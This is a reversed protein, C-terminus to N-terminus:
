SQAKVPRLTPDLLEYGQWRKYSETLTREPFVQHVDAPDPGEGTDEIHIRSVADPVVNDEGQRYLVKYNFDQLSLQIRTLQDTASKRTPLSVLAQHDSVM